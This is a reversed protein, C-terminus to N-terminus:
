LRLGRALRPLKGGLGMAHRALAHKLPPVVDVLTLGINRVLALPPFTTSFTRVLGDTFLATELEEQARKNDPDIRLVQQLCSQRERENEAVRSMWLWARPNEPDEQLVGRLLERATSKKGRAAAVIARDLETSM